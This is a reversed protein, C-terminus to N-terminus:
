RNQHLFTSIHTIQHSILTVQFLILSMPICWNVLPFTLVLNWWDFLNRFHKKLVWLIFTHTCQNQEVVNQANKPTHVSDWLKLNSLFCLRDTRIKWFDPFPLDSFMTTKHTRNNYQPFVWFHLCFSFFVVRLAQFLLLHEILYVILLVIRTSFIHNPLFKHPPTM